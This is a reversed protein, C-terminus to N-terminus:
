SPRGHCTGSGSDTFTKGAVPIFRWDYGGTRLTLQLVGLTESDRMELNPNTSGFGYLTEGGGTGVTIQRVGFAPDATGDPRMPTYRQYNHDHGNLVLEVGNEYLAQWLPTTEPRIFPRDTVTSFQPHHFMAVTCQESHSALEARLWQEQPSGAAIYSGRETGTNLVIVRWSGLTYSYYGKAPDGATSGFYGYYGAADTTYYDHNGAVPRTRAKQRGWTPDYCDTFEAPTGNEYVNDGLPAVVGELGDLLAATQEDGQRTCDGIDGAALLIPATTTVTLSDSGKAGFKDTVDVHIRYSAESTYTHTAAITGASGRTGSTTTGDGWLIAYSWPGDAGDSFTAALSFTSGVPEAVDPPAIVVPPVNIVQATTSAASSAAGKSDTVTLKVTFSGEARYTHTPRADAGTSGDGFDWRYTLGDGDPDSSASGDFTVVGTNTTYPGGVAAVPPQNPGTRGGGSCAAGLVLLVFLRVRANMSGREDRNIRIGVHLNGFGAADSNAGAPTSTAGASTRGAFSHAASAGTPAAGRV